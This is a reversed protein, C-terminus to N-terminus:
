EIALLTEFEVWHVLLGVLLTCMNEEQKPVQALGSGVQLNSQPDVWAVLPDTVLEFVYLILNYLPDATSITLLPIPFGVYRWDPRLPIASNIEFFIQLLSPYSQITM